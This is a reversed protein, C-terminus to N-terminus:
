KVTAIFFDFEAGLTSISESHFKMVSKSGQLANQGWINVTFCVWCAIFLCSIDAPSQILKGTLSSLLSINIPFQTRRSTLTSGLAYGSCNSWTQIISYNACVVAKLLPPTYIANPAFFLSPVQFTGQYCNTQLDNWTLRPPAILRNPIPPPDCVYLAAHYLM